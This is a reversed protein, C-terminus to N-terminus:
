RKAAYNADESQKQYWFLASPKESRIHHRSGIGRAVKIKYTKNIREVDITETRKGQANITTGLIRPKMPSQHDTVTHNYKVEKPWM